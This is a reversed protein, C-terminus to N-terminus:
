FVRNEIRDVTRSIASPTLGLRRGAASFSGEAAIAAFVELARTRDTASLIKADMEFSKRM